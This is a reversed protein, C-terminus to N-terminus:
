FQARHEDQWRKEEDIMLAIEAAKQRIRKLDEEIRALQYLARDRQDLIKEAETALMDFANAEITELPERNLRERENQREERSKKHRSM